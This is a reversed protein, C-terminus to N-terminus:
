HKPFVERVRTATKLTKAPPNEVRGAPAAAGARPPAAPCEATRFLADGGEGARADGGPLLAGPVERLRTQALRLPM